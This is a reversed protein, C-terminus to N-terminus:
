YDDIPGLIMDAVRSWQTAALYRAQKATQIDWNYSSSTVDAIERAIYYPSNRQSFICVNTLDEFVPLDPVILPIGARLLVRSAGSAGEPVDDYALVAVDCLAAAKLIHNIDYFDFNFDIYAELGRLKALEVCYKAYQVAENRRIDLASYLSYRVDINAARLISCAEIIRDFGKHPAMFGFSIVRVSALDRTRPKTSYPKDVGHPILSMKASGLEGCALSYESPNHLIIRNALSLIGSLRRFGEFGDILSHLELTVKCKETLARVIEALMDWGFIGPHHEILVHDCDLSILQDVILSVYSQDRRWVRYVQPLEDIDPLRIQDDPIKESVIGCIDYTKTAEGILDHAFTAIGCRQGFTSLVAHRTKQVRTSKVLSKATSIVDSTIGDLFREAVHSWKFKEDLLNRAAMVKRIREGESMTTMARMLQRLHAKDPRAWQAGKAAVHSISAELAYRILWATENTCFDTQGGWGTTIVPCNWFMAEAAPLLFGEGFSPAVLCDAEAYVEFYEALSLEAITLQVLPPCSHSARHRETQAILDENHPNSFTKIVLKVNDSASFESFFSELLIDAGKRPFCSSVHLFTFPRASSISRLSRPPPLRPIHDTGNGITAVSTTVGSNRFARSVFSATTGIFRYGSLLTALDFSIISEEWAFCHMATPLATPAERIPWTNVTLVDAEHNEPLDTILTSAIEGLELFLPDSTL